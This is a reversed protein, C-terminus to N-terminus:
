GYAPKKFPSAVENFRKQAIQRLIEIDSASLDQIRRGAAVEHHMWTLSPTITALVLILDKM